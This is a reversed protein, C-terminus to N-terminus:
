ECILRTVDDFQRQIASTAGAVTSALVRRAELARAHCMLVLAVVDRADLTEIDLGYDEIGLMRLLERSKSHYAIGITPVHCLSGILVSHFRAGIVVDAEGVTHVLDRVSSCQRVDPESSGSAAAHMERAVDRAAASDMRQTTFFFWQFDRQRLELCVSAMVRVYREYLRPDADPWYGPHNWPLVNVAVVPRCRVSHIRPTVKLGFALDPAVRAEGRFGLTRTLQMSREDRFSVFAARHLAAVCLRRSLRSRLPGAGVSLFVVPIGAARALTTWCFLTWPANWPGGFQDELQNSGSVVLLDAGRLWRYSRWLFALEGPLELLTRAATRLPRLLRRLRRLRRQSPAASKPVAAAQESGRVRPRAAARFAPWAPIGHRQQTDRPDAAVCELRASPLRSRFGEITADLVAEDGLNSTGYQGFLVIRM